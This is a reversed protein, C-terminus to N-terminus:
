CCGMCDLYSGVSKLELCYVISIHTKSRKVKAKAGCSDCQMAMMKAIILVYKWEINCAVAVWPGSSVVM